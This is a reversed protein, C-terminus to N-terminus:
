LLNRDRSALTLEGLDTIEVHKALSAKFNDILPQATAVITCDDVHVLVIILSTGVRKYFVVQDV